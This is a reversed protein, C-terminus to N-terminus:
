YGVGGYVPVVNLGSEGALVKAEEAVQRALERTPTLVLAQCDPRSVDIRELLPLIFAGTKGSGTRAQVMVDQGALVYPIAKAQVLTLESWGARAFGERLAEPLGSLEAEPLEPNPGAIQSQQNTNEETL